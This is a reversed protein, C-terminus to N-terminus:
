RYYSAPPQSDSIVAAIQNIANPLETMACEAERVLWWACSDSVCPQSKLPCKKLAAKIRIDQKEKDAEVKWIARQEEHFAALEERHAKFGETEEIDWCPDKLWGEKLNEIDQRTVDSM